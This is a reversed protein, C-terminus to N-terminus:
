GATWALSLADNGSSRNFNHSVNYKLLGGDNEHQHAFLQMKPGTITLKNATSGVGTSATFAAETMDEIRSLTDFTAVLEPEFSMNGSMKPYTIRASVYGDAANASERLALGNDITLSWKTPVIAVTAYTLASALWPAPQVAIYTNSPVAAEAQEHDFVGVFTFRFKAPEGVKDMAITFTSCRAGRLVWYLGDLHVRMTLSKMQATDTTVPAYTASTTSVLTDDLQSALLLLHIESGNSGLNALSAAGVACVEFSLSGSKCGAIRSYEGFSNSVIPREYMNISPTFSINQIAIGNTLSTEATGETAEQAIALGGVMTRYVAM